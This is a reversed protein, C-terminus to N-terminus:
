QGWYVQQYKIQHCLNQPSHPWTLIWENYCIIMNLYQTLTNTTWIFPIRIRINYVDIAYLFRPYYVAKGSNKNEWHFNNDRNKASSTTFRILLKRVCYERITFSLVGFLPHAGFRLVNRCSHSSCFRLKRHSYTQFRVLMVVDLISSTHILYNYWITYTSM